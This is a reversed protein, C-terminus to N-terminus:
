PASPLSDIAMGALIFPGVGKNDNAVVPESLYYDYTGNRGYGLGAVQCIGTLSLAGDSATRVFQRVLGAYGRCAASRYSPPLYGRAVGQGLTYVFMATGSAELYNGARAGQDTVQYWAGTAPDQYRALGAALRRLQALLEGRGPHAPPLLDLVDVLAMGYWGMGRSWFSPSRGTTRDAWAQTRSEDWGHYYLGTAPDYTHSGILRLQKVAEDFDAPQHFSAAYGALFPSAMYASDLWMQQPYRRKHWFGGETTLASHGELHATRMVMKIEGEHEGWAIGGEHLFVTEPQAQPVYGAPRWEILNDSELVLQQTDGRVDHRRTNRQAPLLYRTNGNVKVELVGPIIALPQHYHMVLEVPHWSLGGDASYAACMHSDESDSFDLPCRMAFCWVLNQNSPHFLIANAFAFQQTGNMASSDFVTVPEWWTKGGDLSRACVIDGMDTKGALKRGYAVMVVTRGLGRGAVLNAQPNVTMRNVADDVGSDTWTAIYPEWIRDFRRSDDKLLHVFTVDHVDGPAFAAPPPSEGRAIRALALGALVLAIGGRRVTKGSIKM